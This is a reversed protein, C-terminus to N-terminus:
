TCLLETPRIDFVEARRVKVARDETTESGMTGGAAGGKRAVPRGPMRLARHARKESKMEVAARRRCYATRTKWKNRRPLRPKEDVIAATGM